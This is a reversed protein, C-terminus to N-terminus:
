FADAKLLRQREETFAWWPQPEGGEIFSVVSMFVDLVCPDHKQGTLLCLQRYLDLASQGRLQEPQLIGLLQLDKAGAPGINPLDTLKRLRDRRVKDPHM